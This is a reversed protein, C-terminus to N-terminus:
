VGSQWFNGSGGRGLGRGCSRSSYADREYQAPRFKSCAQKVGGGCLEERLLSVRGDHERLRKAYHCCRSNIQQKEVSVAPDPM